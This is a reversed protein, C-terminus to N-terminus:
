MDRSQLVKSVGDIQILIDNSIVLCVLFSFTGVGKVLGMVEGYCKAYRGKAVTLLVPKVKQLQYHVAKVPETKCQWRMESLSKMSISTHQGLIDWRQTSAAFLMYLWQIFGFFSISVVFCRVADSVALNLHHASRPVYFVRPNMQLIQAQVGSHKGKMNSSNDYGTPCLCILAM